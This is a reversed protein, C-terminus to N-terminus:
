VPMCRLELYTYCWFDTPLLFSVYPSRRRSVIFYILFPHMDLCCPMGQILHKIDIQCSYSLLLQLRTALLCYAIIWHVAPSFYKLSLRILEFFASYFLVPTSMLFSVVDLNFLHTGVIDFVQVFGSSNGYALMTADPSWKIIRWEPYSDKDVSLLWPLWILSATSQTKSNTTGGTFLTCLLQPLRIVQYGVSFDFWEDFCKLFPTLWPWRILSSSWWARLRCYTIINLSLGPCLLSRGWRNLLIFIHVDAIQGQPSRSSVTSELVTGPVMLLALSMILGTSQKTVCRMSSLPM